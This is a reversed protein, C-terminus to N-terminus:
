AGTVPSGSARWSPPGVVTGGAWLFGFGLAPHVTMGGHCLDQGTSADYVLYRQVRADDGACDALMGDLEVQTPLEPKGFAAAMVAVARRLLAMTDIRVVQVGEPARALSATVDLTFADHEAEAM